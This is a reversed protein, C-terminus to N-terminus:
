HPCIDFFDPCKGDGKGTIGGDPHCIINGSTDRVEGMQDCCREAPKYNVEKGKYNCKGKTTVVKVEEILTEVKTQSKIYFIAFVLLPLTILL